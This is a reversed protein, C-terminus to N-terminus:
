AGEFSGYLEVLINTLVDCLVIYRNPTPLTSSLETSLYARANVRFSVLLPIVTSFSNKGYFFTQYANVYLLKITHM